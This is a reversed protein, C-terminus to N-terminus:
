GSHARGILHCFAARPLPCRLRPGPMVMLTHLEGRQLFGFVVCPTAAWISGDSAETLDDIPWPLREDSPFVNAWVGNPFRYIGRDSGAYISGDRAAHLANVPANALGDAVSSATWNLGDYRQVGENVGFWMVGDADEVM